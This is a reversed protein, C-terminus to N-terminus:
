RLLLVQCEGYHPDGEIVLERKGHLVLDSGTYSEFPLVFDMKHVLVDMDLWLIFEARERPVEELTQM